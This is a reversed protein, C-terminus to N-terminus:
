SASGLARLLSFLLRQKMYLSLLANSYISEAVAIVIVVVM